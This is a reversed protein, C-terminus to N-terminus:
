ERHGSFTFNLREFKSFKGAYKYYKLPLKLTKDFM